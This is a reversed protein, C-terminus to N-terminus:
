VTDSWGKDLAAWAVFGFAVFSALVMPRVTPIDPLTPQPMNIGDIFQWLIPMQSAAILGGILAAGILIPTRFKTKAELRGLTAASFGNDPVPAAYDHLLAQFESNENM